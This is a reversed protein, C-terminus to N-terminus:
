ESDSHSTDGSEGDNDGDVGVSQVYPCIENAIWKKLSQRPIDRSPEKLYRRKGLARGKTVNGSTCSTTAM